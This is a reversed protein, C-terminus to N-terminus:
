FPPALRVTAEVPSFESTHARFITDGPIYAEKPFVVRGQSTRKSSTRLVEGGKSLVELVIETGEISVPQGDAELWAYVNTEKSLWSDVEDLAIREPPNLMLRIGDAERPAEVPKVKTNMLESGFIVNLRGTAGRSSGTWAPTDQEPDRAGRDDGTFHWNPDCKVWVYPGFPDRCWGLQGPTNVLSAYSAKESLEQGQWAIHTPVMHTHVKLLYARRDIDRTISDFTRIISVEADRGAMKCTLETLCYKGARFALSIGDDEYLRTLYSGEGFFVELVFVSDDEAFAHATVPRTVIISGARVWLPGCAPERWSCEHWEGSSKFRQGTWYDVWEGAPFYVCSDQGVLLGNGLYHQSSNTRAESDEPHELLMPRMIPLGSKHAEWAASYLHPGLRARLKAYVRHCNEIFPPYLWPERYYAWSDILTFPTLYGLHIGATSDAIMDLSVMSHASLSGNILGTGAFFDAAWGTQWRHSGVSAFYSNFLVIARHGTHEEIQQIVTESYLSNAILAAEADEENESADKIEVPADLRESIIGRPYPDDQKFFDVGLDLSQSIRKQFWAKRVAPDVFGSRPADGSEWLEFFFGLAHLNSIMQQPSPFRKTSWKWQMSYPIDEWGPELGLMGCPIDRKRFTNAISEVESHAIYYRCIYLLDLAWRPPMEPRGCLNTYGDLIQKPSPGYILFIDCNGKEARLLWQNPNTFDFTQPWTTNSFAGYGATTFFFPVTAESNRHTREWRMTLGHLEMKKRHFGLGYWGDQTHSTASLVFGGQPNPTLTFVALSIGTPSNLEWHLGSADGKITPGKSGRLRPKGPIVLGVRENLSQSDEESLVHRIRLLGDGFMTLQLTGGGNVKRVTTSGAKGVGFCISPLTVVPVAFASTKVFDRRTWHRQESVISDGRKATILPL